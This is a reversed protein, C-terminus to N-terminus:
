AAASTDVKIGIRYAEDLWDSAYACNQYNKFWPGGESYHVALPKGATTGYLWNWRHDLNGIEHDHLWSMAHLECGHQSNVWSPTLAKNKSHGCNFAMLSSWNKRNYKQQLQGDMKIQSQPVYNQQCCMVAYKDDFSKVLEAIDAMFLFDCDVFIAWGQWQCLAPVLFRTFSFGTSFPKGDVLDYKQGGESRWHREYLGALRLAPEDLPQVHVAISSHKRLSSSAVRYADHERSDYGIFVPLVTDSSHM